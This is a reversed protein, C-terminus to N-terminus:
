AVLRFNDGEVLNAGDDSRSFYNFRHALAQNRVRSPLYLMKQPAEKDAIGHLQVISDAEYKM